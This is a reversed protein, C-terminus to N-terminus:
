ENDTMRTKMRLLQRFTVGKKSLVQNAPNETVKVRFKRGKLEMPVIDPGPKFNKIQVSCIIDDTTILRAIRGESDLKDESISLVDWRDMEWLPEAGGGHRENGLAGQYELYFGYQQCIEELHLHFAHADELSVRPQGNNVGNGRCGAGILWFCSLGAAAYMALRRHKHISPPRRSFMM